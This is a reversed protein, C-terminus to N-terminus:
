DILFEQEEYSDLVSDTILMRTVKFMKYVHNINSYHDERKFKQAVNSDM